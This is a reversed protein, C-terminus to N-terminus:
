VVDQRSLRHALVLERLRTELQYREMESGPVEDPFTEKIAQAVDKARTAQYIDLASRFVSSLAEDSQEPEQVRNRISFIHDGIILSSSILYLANPFLNSATHVYKLESICTSVYHDLRTSFLPVLNTAWYRQRNPDALPTPLNVQSGRAPDAVAVVVGAGGFHNPLFQAQDKALDAERAAAAEPEPEERSGCASSSPGVTLSDDRPGGVPEAQSARVCPFPGITVTDDSRERIM